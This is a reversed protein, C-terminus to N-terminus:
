PRRRCRSRRRGCLTMVPCPFCVLAFPPLAVCPSNRSTRRWVVQRSGRRKRSLLVFCVFGTIGGDGSWSGLWGVLWCVGIGMVVSGCTHRRRCPVTCACAKTSGYVARGGRVKTIANVYYVNGSAPDVVASWEEGLTSQVMASGTTPTLGAEALTGYGYDVKSVAEGDAGKEEYELEEDAEQVVGRSLRDLWCVRACEFFGTAALM